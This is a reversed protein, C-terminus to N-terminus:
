TKTALVTAISDDVTQLQGPTPAAPDTGKLAPFVQKKVADAQGVTLGHAAIKQAAAAEAPKEAGYTVAVVDSWTKSTKDYESLTFAVSWQPETSTGAAAGDPTVCRRTLELLIKFKNNKPDPNIMISLYLPKCVTGAAPKAVEDLALFQPKVATKRLITQPPKAM